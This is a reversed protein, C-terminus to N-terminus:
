TMFSGNLEIIRKPIIREHLFTGMSEEESKQKERGQRGRERLGRDSLVLLRFEDLLALLEHALALHLRV